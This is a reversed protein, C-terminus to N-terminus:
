RVVGPQRRAALPRPELVVLSLSGRRIGVIRAIPTQDRPGDRVELLLQVVVRPRSRAAM